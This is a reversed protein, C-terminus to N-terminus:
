LSANNHLSCCSSLDLAARSLDFTARSLHLAARSLDLAARSTRWARWDQGSASAMSINQRILAPASRSVMMRCIEAALARRWTLELWSCCSFLGVLMSIMDGTSYLAQASTGCVSDVLAFGAKGM